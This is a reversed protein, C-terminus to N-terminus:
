RNRKILLLTGLFLSSATSTMFIIAHRYARQTVPSTAATNDRCQTCGQAHTKATCLLAATALLFIPLLSQTKRFRM